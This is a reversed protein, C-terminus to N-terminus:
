TTTMGPYRRGWKKQLRKRYVPYQGWRSGERAYTAGVHEVQSPVVYVGLDGAHCQMCYDEVFCHYGDFRRQDFSLGSTRDIVVCCSDVVCVEVPEDIEHGWVYDGEWSRGVVGLAGWEANARQLSDIASLIRGVFDSPFSVDPHVFIRVSPGHLRALLNYLSAINRSLANGENDLLFRVPADGHLADLSPLLYSEATPWDHIACAVSLEM